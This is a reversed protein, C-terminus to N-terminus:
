RRLRRQGAGARGRGGDQVAGARRHRGRHRERRGQGQRGRAAHAARDGQRRLHVAAPQRGGRRDRAGEDAARQPDRERADDGHRRRPGQGASREAGREAGARGPDALHAAPGDRGGPQRGHRARDAPRHDPRQEDPRQTGTAGNQTYSALRVETAGATAAATLTTNLTPPPSLAKAITVTEQNAGSDVVLQQGARFGFPTALRLGTAGVATAGNLTTRLANDAYQDIVTALDAFSTTVVFTNTYKLTSGATDQLAVTTTHKGVTLRNLPLTKPIMFVGDLTM